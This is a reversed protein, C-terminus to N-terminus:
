SYLFHTIASVFVITTKNAKKLNELHDIFSNLTSIEPHKRTGIPKQRDEAVQSLFEEIPYGLFEVFLDFGRRYHVRTSESKKSKLYVEVLEGLVVGSTKKKGKESADKTERKSGNKPKKKEEM